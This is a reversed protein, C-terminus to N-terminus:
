YMKTNSEEEKLLTMRDLSNSIKILYRLVESFFLLVLSFAFVYVFPSVKDWVWDQWAWTIYLITISSLLAGTLGITRFFGWLKFQNGLGAFIFSLFYYPLFLTSLINIVVTWWAGKSEYHRFILISPVMVLAILGLVIISRVLWHANQLKTLLNKM